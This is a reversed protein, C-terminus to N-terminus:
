AKKAAGEERPTVQGLTVWRGGMVCGFGVGFDGLAWGFDVWTGGRVWRSLRSGAGAKLLTM